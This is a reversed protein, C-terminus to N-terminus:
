RLGPVMRKRCNARRLMCDWCLESEMHKRCDARRLMCDWCLESVMHQRCDARASLTITSDLILHKISASLLTSLILYYMPAM